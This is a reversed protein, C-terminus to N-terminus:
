KQKHQSISIFLCICVYCAALPVTLSFIMAYWSNYYKMVLMEVVMTFAASVIFATKNFGKILAYILVGVSVLIPSLMILTM